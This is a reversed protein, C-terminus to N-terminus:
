GNKRAYGALKGKVRILGERVIDAGTITEENSFSPYRYATTKQYLADYAAPELKRLDAIKETVLMRFLSHGTLATGTETSGVFDVCLDERKRNQEMMFFEFKRFTHRILRKENVAASNIKNRIGALAIRYLEEGAGKRFEALLIPANDLMAGTMFISEKFKPHDPDAMFAQALTNILSGRGLNKEKKGTLSGAWYKLAVRDTESVRNITFESEERRCGSLISFVSRIEMILFSVKGVGTRENGATGGDVVYGSDKFFEDPMGSVLSDWFNNNIAPSNRRAIKKAERISAFWPLTGKRGLVAPLPLGKLKHFAAHTLYTNFDEYNRISTGFFKAGRKFLIEDCLGNYKLTVIDMLGKFSVKKFADATTLRKAMQKVKFVQGESATDYNVYDNLM